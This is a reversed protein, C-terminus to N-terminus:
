HGQDLFAVLDALEQAKLSQGFTTPMIGPQYGPAVYAGPDTISASTFQALTGQNAQRAYQALKDLDPGITGKSGAPTFTHCASCGASAFVAKGAAANGKLAVPAKPAKGVVTEPTPTVVSKGGPVTDGCGVALLALAAIVAILAFRRVPASHLPTSGV